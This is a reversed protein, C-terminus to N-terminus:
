PDGEAAKVRRERYWCGISLNKGMKMDPRIFRRDRGM